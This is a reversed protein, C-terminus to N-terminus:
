EVITAEEVRRALLSAFILYQGAKIPTLDNNLSHAKPNRIGQFAGMFIQMFGKQNNKGSESDLNSMIIKPNDLSFVQGILASGDGTTKTRERIYDFVDIISNLVSDRYHGDQYQDYSKEIILPHLLEEFARINRLELEGEWYDKIEDIFSDLIELATQLGAQYSKEFEEDSPYEVNSYDIYIFDEIHSKSDKFIREIAIRTDRFWRTFEPSQVDKLKLLEIQEKLQSLKAIAAAKNM